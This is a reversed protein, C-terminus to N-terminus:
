MRMHTYMRVHTHAHMGMHHHEQRKVAQLLMSRSLMVDGQKCQALISQQRETNRHM